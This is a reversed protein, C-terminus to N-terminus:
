ILNKLVKGDLYNFKKGQYSDRNILQQEIQEKVKWWSTNWNVIVTDEKPARGILRQVIIDPNLYELFTITREIYDEKKLLHVKSSNYMKELETNKVVYLSHLKVQNIHLASVIKACEIVDTIDDWPIDLIVHACIELGYEKIRIAADIFEALTHGRNLKKLTHYNVSQLGLEICININKQLKIEKLFELYNDAICDPRTSIYIGVIDNTCAQIIYEKFTDFPLYTNSFNQFYAIFKNAKYKEKIYKLNKVMQEKVDIDPSLMEFGAGKEGCFICGNNAIVGDRNPCTSPINIPIKYVKEGYKNKLYESYINYRFNNDM